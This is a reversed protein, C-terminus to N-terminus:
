GLMRVEATDAVGEEQGGERRSPLVQSGLHPSVCGTQLVGPAGHSGDAPGESSTSRRGADPGHGWSERFMGGFCSVNAVHFVQFAVYIQFLHFM